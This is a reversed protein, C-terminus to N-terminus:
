EEVQGETVLSHWVRSFMLTSADDLTELVVTQVKSLQPLTELTRRVEYLRHEYHDLEDFAALALKVEAYHGDLDVIFQMDRYGSARPQLFRDRFGAIVFPDGVLPASAYLDALSTFVIKGALIDLPPFGFLNTKEELRAWSKIGGPRPFAPCKVAAGLAMLHEAFRGQLQLAEAYATQADAARQRLQSPDEPYRRRLARSLEAYPEPLPPTPDTQPM